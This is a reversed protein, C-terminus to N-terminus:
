GEAELTLEGDGFEVRCGTLGRPVFKLVSEDEDSFDERDYFHFFLHKGGPALHFLQSAKAQDGASEVIFRIDSMVSQRTPNELLGEAAEVSYRGSSEGVEVEYCTFDKRLNLDAPLDVIELPVAIGTRILQEAESSRLEGINLAARAGVVLAGAVTVVAVSLLVSRRRSLNALGIRKSTM